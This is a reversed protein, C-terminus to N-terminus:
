ASLTVEAGPTLPRTRNRESLHARGKESGERTQALRKLNGQAIAVLRTDQTLFDAESLCFAVKSQFLMGSHAAIACVSEPRALPQGDGGHLSARASHM